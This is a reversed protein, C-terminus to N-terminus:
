TIAVNEVRCHVVYRYYFLINGPPLPNFAPLRILAPKLTNLELSDLAFIVKDTPTLRSSGCCLRDRSIPSYKYEPANSQKTLAFVHAWRRVPPPVEM